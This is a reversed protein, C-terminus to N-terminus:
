ITEMSVAVSFLFRVLSMASRSHRSSSTETDHVSDECDALCRYETRWEENRHPFLRTAFTGRV